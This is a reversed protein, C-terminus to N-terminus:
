SHRNWAPHTYTGSLQQEPFGITFTTARGNVPNVPTVTVPGSVPGLPGMIQLVQDTTFTSVQMPRDFTVTFTSTTADTLLNGAGTGGPVSTSAVHPGPVILPLMNQNFPASLIYGGTYTGGTYAAASFTVPSTPQPAPTAYVDGPTLGTFATVLPNQDTIADANQDM